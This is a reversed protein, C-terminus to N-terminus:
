RNKIQNQLEYITNLAELPTLSSIDMERLEKLIDDEAPFDFISLQGNYDAEPKVSKKAHGGPVHIAKVKTTIDAESLEQM